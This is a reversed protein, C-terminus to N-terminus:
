SWIKCGLKQHSPLPGPRLLTPDLLKLAVGFEDGTVLSTWGDSETVAVCRQSSIYRECLEESVLEGLECPRSLYM